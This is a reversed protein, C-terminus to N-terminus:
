RWVPGFHKQHYISCSFLRQYQISNTGKGAFFRNRRGKDAMNQSFMAIALM